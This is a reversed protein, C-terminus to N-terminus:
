LMRQVTTIEPKRSSELMDIVRCDGCMKLRELNGSFASHSSLRALMGEIMKLTGFPKHCRICHFPQSENLIVSASATVSRNLRPLLSIAKEPCTSVCLGCQVCNKEIFKLQPREESSILASSPCSGTCSMCLTCAAANVQLSGFPSGPPLSIDNNQTPAHRYLHDLAFDLTNRKDPFANFVANQEPGEGPMDAHLTQSLEEPISTEILKFHTGPYGLGTLIAQAVSLQHQLSTIYQPAEADTVLISIHKAGYAIASLWIDLGVSAAHYLQVPIINAPIGKEIRGANAMRGLQDIIERGKGEGHFLVCPHRGGAKFYTQLLTKIRKAVYPVNPYAYSLAGSPCVTSCAGCGACLHSEVQIHDGCSQIAGASCIDICAHCGTRQNRGHACLRQKYQFYKPKEFEGTMQVLKLAAQMQVDNDAWHAYCYGYPSQHAAVVRKESLDFILDFNASRQQSIRGFQIAEAAGCAEVCRGHRDCKEEDVQYLFNIAEEPCAEICKNCRVCLELDIPNEQLWNVCFSGLWGQVEVQNGSYIPYNREAPIVGTSQKGTILVHVQLQDRLFEAWKLAIEPPGIILLDGQSAYSVTPVPDAEPLAAEALLAAIKPLPLQKTCGLGAGDRLNVFRLPAISNNETALENFLAREQTCGVVVTDTQQVADLYQGADKGCLQHAVPLAEKGLALGIRRGAEADLGISRNCSCTKFHTTM